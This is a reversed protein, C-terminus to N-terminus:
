GRTEAGNAEAGADASADEVSFKPAHIILADQDAIPAEYKKRTFHRIAAAESRARVLAVAKGDEFVIRIPAKKSDTKDM